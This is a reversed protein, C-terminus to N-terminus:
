IATRIRLTSLHTRPPHTLYFEYWIKIRVCNVGNECYFQTLGLCWSSSIKYSRSRDRVVDVSLTRKTDRVQQRAHTRTRLHIHLTSPRHRLRESSEKLATSSLEGAWSLRLSIERDSLLTSIDAHKTFFPLLLIYRSMSSAQCISFKPRCLGNFFCDMYFKCRSHTPCLASSLSRSLSFSGCGFSILQFAEYM